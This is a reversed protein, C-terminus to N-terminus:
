KSDFHKALKTELFDVTRELAEIRELLDDYIMAECLSTNEEEDIFARDSATSSISIETEDSPLTLDIVERVKRKKNLPNQSM